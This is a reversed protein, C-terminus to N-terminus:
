DVQGCCGSCCVGAGAVAGGGTWGPGANWTMTRPELPPARSRFLEDNMTLDACVGHALFQRSATSAPTSADPTSSIRM